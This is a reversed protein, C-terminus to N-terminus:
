RGKVLRERLIEEIKIACNHINLYNEGTIKALQLLLISYPTPLSAESNTHMQRSHIFQPLPLVIFTFIGPEQFLKKLFDLKLNFIHNIISEISNFCSGENKLFNNNILLPFLSCVVSPFNYEIIGKLISSNETEKSTLLIKGWNSVLQVKEDDDFLDWSQLIDHDFFINVKNVYKFLMSHFIERNSPLYRSFISIKKKDFSYFECNKPESPTIGSWNSKGIKKKIGQRKKRISNFFNGRLNITPRGKKEIIFEPSKTDSNRFIDNVNISPVSMNSLYNYLWNIAFIGSWEIGNLISYFRIKEELLSQDERTKLIWSSLKVDFGFDLNLSEITASVNPKSLENHFYLNELIYKPNPIPHYVFIPWISRAIVIIISPVITLKSFFKIINGEKFLFEWLRICLPQISIGGRHGFLNCNSLIRHIMIPVNFPPIVLNISMSFFNIVRELDAPSPIKSVQTISRTQTISNIDNDWKFGADKLWKPIANESKFIDIKGVKVWEIIDFSTIQYGSKLLSIWIICLIFSYNIKPCELSLNKFCDKPLSRKRLNQSEINGLFEFIPSYDSLSSNHFVRILCKGLIKYLLLHIIRVKYLQFELDRRNQFENTPLELYNSISIYDQNIKRNNMLFIVHFNIWEDFRSQNIHGNEDSISKSIRNFYSELFDYEYIMDIVSKILESRPINSEGYWNSYPINRVNALQQLKRASIEWEELLNGGSSEDKRANNSMRKRPNTSNCYRIIGDCIKSLYEVRDLGFLNHLLDYLIINENEYVKGEIDPIKLNKTQINNINSNSATENFPVKLVSCRLDAFFARISIRNKCLYELFSFWISKSTKLVENKIQRREIMDKIINQVILQVGILFDSNKVTKPKKNFWKDFYTQKKNYINNLTQDYLTDDDKLSEINNEKNLLKETSQSARRVNSRRGDPGNSIEFYVDDIDRELERIEQQQIGCDECFYEGTNTDIYVRDGRCNECILSSDETSFEM